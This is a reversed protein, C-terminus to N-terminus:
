RCLYTLQQSKDWNIYLRGEEKVLFIFKYFASTSLHWANLISFYGVHISIGRRHKKTLWIIFNDSASKSMAIACIPITRNPRALFSVVGWRQRTIKLTLSSAWLFIRVWCGKKEKDNTVFLRCLKRIAAHHLGHSQNQADFHSCCYFRILELPVTQQDCWQSEKELVSCPWWCLRPHRNLFQVDWIVM